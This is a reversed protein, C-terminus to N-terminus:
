RVEALSATSPEEVPAPTGHIHASNLDWSESSGFHLRIRGEAPGHERPHRALRRTTWLEHPYGLDEGEPM